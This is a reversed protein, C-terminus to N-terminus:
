NGERVILIIKEKEVRKDRKILEYVKKECELYSKDRNKTKSTYVTEGIENYIYYTGDGNVQITYKGITNM